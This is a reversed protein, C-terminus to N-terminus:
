EEEAKKIIQQINEHAKDALETLRYFTKKRIADGNRRSLGHESLIINSIDRAAPIDNYMNCEICEDNKDYKNFITKLSKLQGTHRNLKYEGDEKMLAFIICTKDQKNVKPNLMTDTIKIMFSQLTYSLKETAKNGKKVDTILDGAMSKLEAIHGHQEKVMTKLEKNDTKLEKNDAKFEENDALLTNVKITLENKETKLDLIKNNRREIKSELKGIISAELSVSAKSQKIEEQRYKNVDIVGELLADKINLQKAYDSVINQVDTKVSKDFYMMLSMALRIHIYSGKIRNTTDNKSLMIYEQVGVTNETHTSSDDKISKGEDKFIVKGDMLSKPEHEELYELADNIDEKGQKSRTWDNFRIPNGKKSEFKKCLDTGNIYGTKSNYVTKKGLFKFEGHVRSLNFPKMIFKPTKVITTSM